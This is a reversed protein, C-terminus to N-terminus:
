SQSPKIDIEMGLTLGKVDICNDMEGNVRLCLGKYRSVTTVKVSGPLLVHCIFKM